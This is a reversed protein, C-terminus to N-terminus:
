DSVIKHVQKRERDDDQDCQDVPVYDNKNHHYISVWLTRGNHVIGNRYACGEQEYLHPLACPWLHSHSSLHAASFHIQGVHSFCAEYCKIIASASDVTGIPPFRANANWKLVKIPARNLFICPFVVVRQVWCTISACKVDAILHNWRQHRGLKRSKPPWKM